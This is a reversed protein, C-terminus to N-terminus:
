EEENDEREKCGDGERGKTRKGKERGGVMWGCSLHVFAQNTIYLRSGGVRRLPPPFHTLYILRPFYGSDIFYPQTAEDAGSEHMLASIKLSSLDQQPNTRYVKFKITKTQLQLFYLAGQRKHGIALM